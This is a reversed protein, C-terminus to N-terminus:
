FYVHSAAWIITTFVVTENSPMRHVDRSKVAGGRGRFLCGDQTEAAGQPGTSSIVPTHLCALTIALQVPFRTMPYKWLIFMVPNNLLCFM